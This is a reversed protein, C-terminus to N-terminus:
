PTVTGIDECEGEAVCTAFLNGEDDVVMCCQTGSECEFACPTCVTEGTGVPVCQGTYPCCFRLVGNDDPECIKGCAPDIDYEGESDRIYFGHKKM